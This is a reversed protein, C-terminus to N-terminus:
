RQGWACHVQYHSGNFVPFMDILEALLMLNMQLMAKNWLMILIDLAEGELM